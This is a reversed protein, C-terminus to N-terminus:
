KIWQRCISKSRRNVEKKYNNRNIIIILLFYALYNPLIDKFILSSNDHMHCNIDHLIRCNTFFATDKPIFAHNNFTVKQFIPYQAVSQCPTVCVGRCSNRCGVAASHIRHFGTAESLFRYSIINTAERLFRYLLAYSM